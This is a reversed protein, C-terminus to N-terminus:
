PQNGYAYTSAPRATSKQDSTCASNTSVSKNLHDPERPNVTLFELNPIHTRSLPTRYRWVDGFRIEVLAIGLSGTIKSIKEDPRTMTFKGYHFSDEQEAM